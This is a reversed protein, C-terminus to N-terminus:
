IPKLYILIFILGVRLLSHSPNEILFSPYSHPM